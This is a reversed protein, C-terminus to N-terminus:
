TSGNVIAVILLAFWAVALVVLVLVGTSAVRVATSRSLVAATALLGVSAFAGAAAALFMTTGGVAALVAIWLAVDLVSALLAARGITM